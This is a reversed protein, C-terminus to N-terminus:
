CESQVSATASAAATWGAARKSCLRGPSTRPPRRSRRQRRAMNYIAGRTAHSWTLIAGRTAHSWTLWTLIAGRTGHSWTRSPVISFFNLYGASFPRPLWSFLAPPQHFFCPRRLFGRPTRHLFNRPVDICFASASSTCLPTRNRRNPRSQGGWFPCGSGITVHQIRNSGFGGYHYRLEACYQSGRLVRASGVIQYFTFFTNRKSRTYKTHGFFKYDRPPM